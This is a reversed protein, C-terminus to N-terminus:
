NAVVLRRTMKQNGVTVVVMYVGSQLQAADINVQDTNNIAGSNITRGMADVITFSGEEVITNLFVTTMANSPNPVIIFDFSMDVSADIRRWSIENKSNVFMEYDGIMPTNLGFDAYTDVQEAAELALTAEQVMLVM